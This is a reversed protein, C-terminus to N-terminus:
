KSNESLVTAARKRLTENPHTKLRQERADGLAGSPIHGAAVADLLIEVRKADRLLGDLALSRNRKSLGPWALILELAAEPSNVDVLGRVAGMQLDDDTGPALFRDLLAGRKAWSEIGLM